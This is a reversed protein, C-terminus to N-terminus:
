TQSAHRDWNKQGPYYMCENLKAQGNTVCRTYSVNTVCRTYSLTYARKKRSFPWMFLDSGIHCIRAFRSEKWKIGPWKRRGRIIFKWIGFQYFRRLCNCSASIYAMKSKSFKNELSCSFPMLSKTPNAMKKQGRWMYNSIAKMALM